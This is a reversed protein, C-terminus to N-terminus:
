ELGAKNRDPRLSVAFRGMPVKVRDMRAGLRDASKRPAVDLRVDIRCFAQADLLQRCVGSVHDAPNARLIKASNETFKRSKRTTKATEGITRCCM